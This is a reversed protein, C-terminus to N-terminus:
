SEEKLRARFEAMLDPASKTARQTIRHELLARASDARLYRYQRGAGNAGEIYGDVLGQDFALRWFSQGRGLVRAAQQPTWFERHRLEETKIRM